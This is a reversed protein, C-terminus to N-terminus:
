ASEGRGSRLVQVNDAGGLRVESAMGIFLGHEVVGVIHDLDIALAAPDQILGFVCNLIYHGGDTLFAGGDPKVRLRPEGGLNQIKRATVRWGFPIVEVPVSHLTGLREVLKSEDAIIILRRTARAVIKERLLAGGYGKILNLTRREVEDAGDITLDVEPYEDLTSLPIGLSAAQAETQTSTPIGIIDLGERIRSALAATAFAATSGTGLGVIMGTQIESVASEAANQKMRDSDTTVLSGWPGADCIQTQM